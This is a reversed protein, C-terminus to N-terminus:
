AVSLPRADHRRACGREGGVELSPELAQFQRREAAQARFQHQRGLGLAPRGFVEQPRQDLGLDGGPRRWPRRGAGPLWNGPGFIMPPSQSKPTSWGAPWERNGPWGPIPGPLLSGKNRRGWPVPLDCKNFARPEAAMSAPWWTLQNEKSSRPAKCRWRASPVMARATRRSMRASGMTMSSMPSNGTGASV